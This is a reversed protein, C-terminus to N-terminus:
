KTFIFFLQSISLFLSFNSVLSVSSHRLALLCLNLRILSDSHEKQPTCLYHKSLTRQNAGHGQWCRRLSTPLALDLALSLDLGSLFGLSTISAQNFQSLNTSLDTSRSAYSFDPATHALIKHFPVESISFKILM